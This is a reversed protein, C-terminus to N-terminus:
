GTSPPRRRTVARTVAEQEAIQEPPDPYVPASAKREAAREVLQNMTRRCGPAYVM